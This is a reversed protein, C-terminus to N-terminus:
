RGSSSRFVPRAIRSNLSRSQRAPALSRHQRHLCGAARHRDGDAHRDLLQGSRGVFPIGKQDEESGPAEGVFMLRAQPSGDGFVLRKATTRLACGEFANMFARLSRWRHRLNPRPVPWGHDAEMLPPPVQLAPMPLRRVPGRTHSCGSRVKAMPLNLAAGSRCRCVPRGTGRRYGRRRRGEVYFTLLDFARRTM